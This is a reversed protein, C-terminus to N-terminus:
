EEDAPVHAPAGAEHAASATKRPESVPVTVVVRRVAFLLEALHYFLDDGTAHARSRSMEGVEMLLEALETRETETM